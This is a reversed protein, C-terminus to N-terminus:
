PAVAVKRYGTPTKVLVGLETARKIFASTSSPSMGDANKADKFRFEEDLTNYVGRYRENLFDVGNLASYGVPDGHEDQERALPIPGFLGVLRTFGGLRLESKKDDSEVGLRTDVSNILARAGAAEEFFEIGDELTPRKAHRDRKRIHHLLLFSCGTEQVLQRLISVVTVADSNKETVDHFFARIPDVIVLTPQFKRVTTALFDQPPSRSECWYPNAVRFNEPPRELGLFASITEVLTRFGRMGSEADFYLVRGTEVIRRGLFETGSAVCLGAQACLPTKGLGSDGVLCNISRQKLFGEIMEDEVGETADKLATFDYVGPMTDVFTVPDRTEDGFCHM